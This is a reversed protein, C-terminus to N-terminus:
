KETANGSMLNIDSSPFEHQQYVAVILCHTDMIDPSSYSM